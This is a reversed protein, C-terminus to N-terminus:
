MPVANTVFVTAAPVVFTTVKEQVGDDPMAGAPIKATM